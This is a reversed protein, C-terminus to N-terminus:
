GPRIPRSDQGFRVLLWGVLVAAVVVQLADFLVFAWNEDIEGSITAALYGIILAAPILFAARVKNDRPGFRVLGFGIVVGLFLPIIEYVASRGAPERAAREQRERRGVQDTVKLSSRRSPPMTRVTFRNVLERAM